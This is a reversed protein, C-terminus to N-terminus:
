PASGNLNNSTSSGNSNKKYFIIYMIIMLFLSIISFIIITGVNVGNNNNLGLKLQGNDKKLSALDIVKDNKDIIIDIYSNFDYFENTDNFHHLTTEIDIYLPGDLLLDQYIDNTITYNYIKITNNSIFQYDIPNLKKLLIKNYTEFSIDISFLNTHNININSNIYIIIGIDIDQGKIWDNNREIIIQNTNPNNNDIINEGNSITTDYKTKYTNTIDGKGEALVLKGVDTNRKGYLRYNFSRPSRIYVETEAAVESIVFDTDFRDKFKRNLISQKSSPGVVWLNNGGGDDSVEQPTSDVVHFKDNYYVENWCHFNWLQSSQLGITRELRLYGNFNQVYYKKIPKSFPPSLHASQYNTIPRAALGITRLLSTLLGAYVWCQAYNVQSKYPYYQNLISISSSWASPHTGGAYGGEWKGVLIGSPNNSNGQSTIKRAVLSIFKRYKLPMQNIFYLSSLITYPHYQGFNWYFKVPRYESGMYFYGKDNILYTQIDKKDIKNIISEQTDKHFPNAIIAIIPYHIIQEQNLLLKYKGLYGYTPIHLTFTTFEDNTTKSTAYWLNTSNISKDYNNTFHAVLKNNTADILSIFLPKITKIHIDFSLGRRLLLYENSNLQYNHTKHKKINNKQNLNVKLINEPNRNYNNNQSYITKLNIILLLLILFTLYLHKKM